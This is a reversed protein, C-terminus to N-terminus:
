LLILVYDKCSQFAIPLGYMILCGLQAICLLVTSVVVDNVGSQVHAEALGLLSDFSFFGAREFVNLKAIQSQLADTTRRFFTQLTVSDKSQRALHKITPYSEVTQDGFLLLHRQAMVM